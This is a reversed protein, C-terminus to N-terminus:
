DEGQETLFPKLLGLMDLDIEDVEEDLMEDTMQTQLLNLLLAGGHIVSM